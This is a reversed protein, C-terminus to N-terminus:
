AIPSEEPLHRQQLLGKLLNKKACLVNKDDSSIALFEVHKTVLIRQAV